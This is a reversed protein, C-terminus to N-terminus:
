EKFKDFKEPNDSKETTHDKESYFTEAFGSDFREKLAKKNQFGISNQPIRIQEELGAIVRLQEHLQERMEEYLENRQRLLAALRSNEESLKKVQGRAEKIETQLIVKEAEWM